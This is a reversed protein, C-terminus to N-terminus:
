YPAFRNDNIFNSRVRGVESLEQDADGTFVEFGREDGDILADDLGDDSGTAEDPHLAACISM